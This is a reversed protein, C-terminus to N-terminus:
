EYLTKRIEKIKKKDINKRNLKQLSLFKEEIESIKKLYNALVIKINADKNKKIDETDM